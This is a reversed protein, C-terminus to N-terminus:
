DLRLWVTKLYAPADSSSPFDPPQPVFHEALIRRGGAAVARHLGAVFREPALTAANTSAFLRGAPEVLPLVARVLREYDAEVRFVGSAKSTSFTPPDVLAVAFRRGKRALRRLWEFVDGHLFEHAAPDLGNLVFNRQGWELYRRSLDVSTTRAGAKAACVSFGCTYAFLNLVAAGVPSDPFAPFGAAVHNVLLRRRNDRQDLFLGVSGSGGPATPSPDSRGAREQQDATVTAAAGGPYGLRVEFRVGNERVTWAAPAPEGYSWRGTNGNEARARPGGRTIRCLAGRLGYRRCWRELEDEVAQRERASGAAAPGDALLWDGWRDVSWGPLPAEGHAVRWADTEEPVILAERLRDRVPETFEPEAALRRTAGTVPDALELLAAHLYLREAAPGGYLTDGLVPFGQEAAHVRIQHTRGTRPEAEVVSAGTPDEGRRVFSTVAERAERARADSAYREGRRVLRSRVLLEDKPPPTATLLLYRKRVLHRTFQDTLSRNAAPTKAFVLVGSTAKDLRHIIALNAWRPERHRLWDYVGEGAFPHPAHTNWGAPKNIVLLHEDEHLILRSVM